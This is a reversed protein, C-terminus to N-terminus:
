CLKPDVGRMLSACVIFTCCFWRLVVELYFKSAEKWILSKMLTLVCATGYTSRGSSLDIAESSLRDTPDRGVLKM